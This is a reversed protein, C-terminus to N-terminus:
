DNSLGLSIESLGSVQGKVVTRGETVSLAFNKSSSVSEPVHSLLVNQVTEAEAEPAYRHSVHTFGHREDFITVTLRTVSEVDGIREYLNVRSMFEDKTLWLCMTLDSVEFGHKSQIMYQWLKFLEFEIFRTQIAGGRSLQCRILKQNDAYNM